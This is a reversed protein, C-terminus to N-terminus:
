LLIDVCHYMMGASSPLLGISHALLGVKLSTRTSRSANRRM